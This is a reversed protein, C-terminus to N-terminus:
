DTSFTPEGLMSIIKRLPMKNILLIVLWGPKYSDNQTLKNIVQRRLESQLSSPNPCYIQLDGLKYIVNIVPQPPGLFLCLFLCKWQSLVGLQATGPVLLFAEPSSLASHKEPLLGLHELRKRCVPGPRFFPTAPPPLPGGRRAM